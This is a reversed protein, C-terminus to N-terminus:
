EMHFVEAMEAWWEGPKRTALPVQCPECVAYWEKVIPEANMRQFAPKLITATINSTASCCSTRRSSRITAACAAETLLRLIEPWVAAHLRKYEELKEPRVGIVMGYRKMRRRRRQATEEVAHIRGMIAKSTTEYRHDNAVEGVIRFGHMVLIRDALTVMEPM